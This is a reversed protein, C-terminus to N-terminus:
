GMGRGTVGSCGWCGRHGADWLSLHACPFPAPPLDRPSAACVSYLFVVKHGQFACPHPHERGPRARQSHRSAKQLGRGLM